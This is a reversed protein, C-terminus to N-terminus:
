GWPCPLFFFFDKFGETNKLHVQPRGLVKVHCQHPPFPMNVGVCFCSGPKPRLLCKLLCDAKWLFPDLWTPLYIFQKAVALSYVNGRDPRTVSLMYIEAYPMGASPFTLFLAASSVLFRPPSSRRLCAPLWLLFFTFSDTSITFFSSSFILSSSLAELLVIFALNQLAIRIQPCHFLAAARYSRRQVLLKWAQTSTAAFVLMIEEFFVIVFFGGFKLRQMNKWLEKQKADTRTVWRWDTGRLASM